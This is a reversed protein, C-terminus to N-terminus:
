YAMASIGLILQVHSFKSRDRTTNGVGLSAYAQFHRKFEYGGGFLFGIGANNSGFHDDDTVWLQFGAGFMFFPSPSHARGYQFFTLGAFGQEVDVKGRSYEVLIHSLSEKYSIGEFYIAILSKNYWGHGIFFSSALGSNNFNRFKPSENSNRAIPGYGAGLGLVFGKRRGNFANAQLACILTLFILCIIAKKM